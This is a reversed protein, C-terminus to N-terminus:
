EKSIRALEATITRGNKNIGFTKNTEIIIGSSTTFRLRALGEEGSFRNLLQKAKKVSNIDLPVDLVLDRSETQLAELLAVSKIDISPIVEDTESDETTDAERYRVPGSILMPINPILLDKFKEYERVWTVGELVGTLDEFRLFSYRKKNRTEKVIVESLIVILRAYEPKDIKLSQVTIGNREIKTKYNDLPHGSIFFGTLEREYNMLVQIPLEPLQQIEPLIPKVPYEPKKLSKLKNGSTNREGRKIAEERNEYEKIKKEYTEIAKEYSVLDKKYLITSEYTQLTTNRNSESGQISDFVGALVMSHIAKKNVEGLDIRSTFDQFNKYRGESDRNGLIVRIPGQGLNKIASFGFRIENQFPTFDELSINIDPPKVDIKLRKCEQLYVIMQDINGIDNTLLAAMFEVPYHSKLYSCWYSIMAYAFAHSKNFGYDAFAKIEEWLLFALEATYGNKLLGDTFKQQNEQMEKDKKKGVARRLLDAEALSYGALEKAIQLVQEQYIIWGGTDKLIPALDPHHYFPDKEGARWALYDDKKPSALPGPRFMAVLATIDEISTPRIQVLLDRMGASSELQFIGVTDGKRLNAYVLEDDLHINYIDIEKNHNVKIWKLANAIVDLNKLGLFDFKILGVEEVNNMDWQTVAQKNKGIALPLIDTLPENSIVVGSAHTGFSSIRNEFKEAWRLIMGEDTNSKYIEALEGEKFAEAITIEKGAKPKPYLKTLKERMQLPFGLTKGASKIAAKAKYTGFTGIQAVKDYGYVEKVYNIVADRHEKPFDIDLDPMSVRAPNLFREFILGNPIPDVNTIGLACCALSGAGSGRGPGVLIGQKKAWNIFDQVVLFYGPFGMQIIIKNEYDLREQYLKEDVKYSFKSIKDKLGKKTKYVYYSSLEDV